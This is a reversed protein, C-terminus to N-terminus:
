RNKEFLAIRQALAFASNKDEKEDGFLAMRQALSFAMDDDEDTYTASIMMEKDGFDLYSHFITTHEEFYKLYIETCIHCVQEVLNRLDYIQDEIIENVEITNDHWNYLSAVCKAFKQLKNWLLNLNENLSQLNFELIPYREWFGDPPNKKMDNIKEITPILYTYIFELVAQPKQDLALSPDTLNDFFDTLNDSLECWTVTCIEKFFQINSDAELAAQKKPNMFGFISKTPELYHIFSSIVEKPGVVTVSKGTINYYEEAVQPAIDGACCGFLIIKGKWDDPKPIKAAMKALEKPFFYQLSEIATEDYKNPVGHGEFVINEDITLPIKHKLVTDKVEKHKGNPIPLRDGGATQMNYYRSNYIIPDINEGDGSLNIRLRQIPAGSDPHYGATIHQVPSNSSLFSDAEQELAPDDNLPAGGVSGTVPVCGQKQQIVHGLEHGLHKEQGPGLYVDNGQTYALAGYQVPKDSNYHVSVDNMPIGSRQEYQAKLEAPIGSTNQSSGTNPVEPTDSASGSLIQILESNSVGDTFLCNQQTTASSLEESSSGIKEKPQFNVM